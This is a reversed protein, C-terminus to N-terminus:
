EMRKRKRLGQPAFTKQLLCPMLVSIDEVHKVAFDVAPDSRCAKDGLLGAEGGTLREDGASEDILVTHMGLAKCARVNKMSDEFMVAREPATGIAKFVKQFAEAEPKCAPMVDEVGFVCTDSFLSRLGLADGM